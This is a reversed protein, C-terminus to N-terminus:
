PVGVVGDPETPYGQLLAQSLDSAVTEDAGKRTDAARVTVAAGKWVVDGDRKRIRLELRTRQLTVVSSAGTSMPVVLGAGVSVSAGNPDKALGTGVGAQSLTLEGWYAAHAPDDFVTFGKATLAKSAADVFLHLSPDYEGDGIVPEIAITGGNPPPAASLAAGCNLLAL